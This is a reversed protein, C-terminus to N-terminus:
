RTVIGRGNGILRGANERYCERTCFQVDSREAVSKQKSVKKGCGHCFLTVRRDAKGGTAHIRAHPAKETLELNEPRNDTRIQNKHHVEEHSRLKRGLTTEMVLRHELQYKKSGGVWVAIYGQSTVFRGGKWNASDPGNPHPASRTCELSCFRGWGKRVVSPPVRFGTGCVECVRDM